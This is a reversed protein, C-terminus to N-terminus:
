AKPKEGVRTTPTLESITGGHFFSPAAARLKAYEEPHERMFAALREPTAKGRADHTLERMTKPEPEGGSPVGGGGRSGPTDNPGGGGAVLMSPFRKGLDKFASEAKEPATGEPLLRIADAVYEPKLGAKVAVGELNLRALRSNAEALEKAHSAKIAEVKAEHDKGVSERIRKEAESEGSRKVKELEAELEAARTRRTANETNLSAIAKRAEILEAASKELAASLEEPKPTEPM